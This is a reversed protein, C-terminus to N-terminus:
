RCRSVSAVLGQGEASDSREKEPAEGPRGDGQGGGRQARGRSAATDDRGSTASRAGSESESGALPDSDSRWRGWWGVEGGGGGGGGKKQRLALEYNWRADSDAVAIELIQKYRYLASDLPADASDKARRGQVLYDLGLNFRAHHRVEADKSDSARTLPPIAQILSDRTSSRPAPTTSRSRRSTASPNSAPLLHHALANDCDNGCRGGSQSPPSADARLHRVRASGARRSRVVPVPNRPERWLGRIKPHRASHQACGPGEGCSGADRADIFVGKAEDAIAKLLDPQYRTVVVNGNEDRKQTVVRNEVIPITSGAATGFGVTIVTLGWRVRAALRPSCKM